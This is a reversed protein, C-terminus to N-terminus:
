VNTSQIIQDYLATYQGTIQEKGYAKVAHQRIIHQDYQQHQELLQQMGEKLSTHDTASSVLGTEPTILDQPGGSPTAVVPIGCAMAEAVVVGFSEFRSPVVLSNARRLQERVATKDIKGTFTVHTHIDLERALNQLIEDLSGGGAVILELPKKNEKRLSAFARLLIDVGKHRELHAICLFTFPHNKKPLEAPTFFDTDTMNPIVSMREKVQPAIELICQQMSRSVTVIHAAHSFAEKLLPRHWPKILANGEKGAVFRGRHETIIYPVGWKNSIRAAAVGAWMSSHAHILDPKSKQMNKEFTSVLRTVWRKANAKELLPIRRLWVAVEDVGSEGKNKTSGFGPILWQAPHDSLGPMHCAQVSVRWPSYRAMAMAHERFFSGGLPPYWSPIVVLTRMDSQDMSAGPKPISHLPWALSSHM